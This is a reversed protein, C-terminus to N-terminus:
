PSWPMTIPAFRRQAAPYTLRHEGGTITTRLVDDNQPRGGKELRHHRHATHRRGRGTAGILSEGQTAVPREAHDSVRQARPSRARVQAPPVGQRTPPSRRRPPRNQRASTPPCRRPFHGTKTKIRQSPRPWARRCRRGQPLRQHNRSPGRTGARDASAAVRATRAGPNAPQKTDKFVNSMRPADPTLSKRKRRM